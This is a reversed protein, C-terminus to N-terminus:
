IRYSSTSLMFVNINIWFMGQAVPAPPRISPSRALAASPPAADMANYHFQRGHECRKCVFDEHRLVFEQQADDDFSPQTPASADAAQEAKVASALDNPSSETNSSTGDM